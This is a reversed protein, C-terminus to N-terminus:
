LSNTYSYKKMTYCWLSGEPLGIQLGFGNNGRILERSKTEGIGLYECTEKITLLKKEM